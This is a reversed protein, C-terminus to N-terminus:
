GSRGRLTSALTPELTPEITDASSRDGHLLADIQDIPMAPHFLWGQAVRGGSALVACQEDETEVGEFMVSLGLAECLQVLSTTLARTTHDAVLDAVFSRDIKIMDIPLTRVHALSSHGTGFDDLAVRVGNARLLGLDDKLTESEIAVSETVEVVVQDTHLGSDDISRLLWGAFDRDAFERGSVNVTVYLQDAIAGLSAFQEFSGRIVQRGIESILGSEISMDLFQGPSRIEGDVRWRMLSEFGLIRGTDLSVIPQFWPVFAGAVLGARLERELEVRRHVKHQLRAGFVETRNRGTEKAEYVAMDANDFMQDADHEDGDVVCIGISAGIQISQGGITFEESVVDFVRAAASRAADLGGDAVVVAFEDGGLRGVMVDDTQVRRALRDGLEALLQDGAAHGLSDNVSKFRDLDCFLVSAERGARLHRDLEAVTRARNALGTLDDTYARRHLEDRRRADASVDRGVGFCRGAAADFHLAWQIVRYSGDAAIMRWSPESRGRERLDKEVVARMDQDEPPLLSWSDLGFIEDDQYGLIRAWTDNWEIVRGEHDYVVYLADDTAFFRRLLHDGAGVRERTALLVAADSGMPRVRWRSQGDVSRYTGEEEVTVDLLREGPRSTVWRSAAIVHGDVDLLATPAPMARVLETWAAIHESAGSQDMRISIPRNRPPTSSHAAGRVGRLTAPM